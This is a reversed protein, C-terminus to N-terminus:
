GLDAPALLGGALRNHERVDKIVYRATMVINNYPIKRYIQNILMGAASNQNLTADFAGTGGRLCAVGKHATKHVFREELSLKVTGRMPLDNPNEFWPAQSEVSSIGAVTGAPRPQFNGQHGFALVVLRAGHHKAKALYKDSKRKISDEIAIQAARHFQSKRRGTLIYIMYRYWAADGTIQM